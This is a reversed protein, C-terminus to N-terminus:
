ADWGRVELEALLERATAWLDRAQATAAEVPLAMAVAALERGWLAM